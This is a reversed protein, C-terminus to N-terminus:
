LLPMDLKEVCLPEIGLWAPETLKPDTCLLKLRTPGPPRGGAIPWALTTALLKRGLMEWTPGLAGRIVAALLM